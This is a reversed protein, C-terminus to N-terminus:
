RYMVTSISIPCWVASVLLYERRKSLGFVIGERLVDLRLNPRIVMKVIDCVWHFIQDPTIYYLYPRIGDPGPANCRAVRAWGVLVEGAGESFPKEPYAEMLDVIMCDWVYNVNIMAALKDLSVRVGSPKMPIM